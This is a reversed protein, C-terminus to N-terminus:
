PAGANDATPSSADIRKIEAVLYAAAKVLRTRRDDGFPFEHLWPWFLGGAGIWGCNKEARLPALGLGAFIPTDTGDKVARLAYSAATLVFEGSNAPGRPIDARKAEIEDYIATM